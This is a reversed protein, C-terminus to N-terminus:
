VDILKYLEITSLPGYYVDGNDNVFKYAPVDLPFNHVPNGDADTFEMEVIEFTDLKVTFWQGGIIVKGIRKAPISM